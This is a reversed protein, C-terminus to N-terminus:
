YQFPEKGHVFNGIDTKRRDVTLKLVNLFKNADNFIQPRFCVVLIGGGVADLEGGALLNWSHNYVARMSRQREPLDRLDSELFDLGSGTMQGEIEAAIEAPTLMEVWAAALLIALPLAVIFFSRLRRRSKGLPRTQRCRSM